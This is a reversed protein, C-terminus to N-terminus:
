KSHEVRHFSWDLKQHNKSCYRAKKCPCSFSGIQTCSIVCCLTLCKECECRFGHTEFLAVRKQPWPITSMYDFTLLDGVKVERITKVIIPQIDKSERPVCLQVSPICSHNARSLLLFFDM